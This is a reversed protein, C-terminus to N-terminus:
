PEERAEVAALFTTVAAVLGGADEVYPFHGTELVALRGQPFAEALEEAMTLPAADSRGHVVLVPMQVAGLEAWWDVAGLSTGLLRAVDPGYRATSRALDLDVGDLRSTDRVTAKFALRYYRSMTAPDRAQFAPSVALEAMAASDASTRAAALRATTASRWRGGPEVPNMLILARTRDPHRRAYDLALLAGFSHGLVTIRDYGLIQRLEDIDRVFADWSITTSDVAMTSRGTGRQDYYVLSGVGTLVDLGPRLYAHDLGPGGHIVVIPDGQGVVEYFIRGEPLSLLGQRAPPAQATLPLAILAAGLLLTGRVISPSM